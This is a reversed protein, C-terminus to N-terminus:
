YICKKYVDGNPLVLLYDNGRVVHAVTQISPQMVYGHKMLNALKYLAKDSFGKTSEEYYEDGKQM